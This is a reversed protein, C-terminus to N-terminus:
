SEEDDEDEDDDGLSTLMDVVNQSLKGAQFDSATYGGAEPTLCHGILARLAELFGEALATVSAREHLAEGYTFQVQLRGGVVSATADLVYARRARPSRAAGSPERAARLPAEQPVAQGIQGLYNFIIEPQPLARLQQRLTDDERLYRLLGYGIGRNPIARLQEKVEKLVWGLDTETGIDLVVPFLTTFWGVTRSLNVGPFIEERGHGELDFLVAGEGTFSRLALAFAALLVDNIQTGYVEPVDRLLSETQEKSLSLSVMKASSEPNEAGPHDVPLRGARQRKEDLWYDQEARVEATRAHEGLLAAWRKISTTRPPLAIPEGRLRAQYAVWLDDLLIRWSVGDIGLHHVVVLLRSPTSPGAQFLVVRIVPGDRLDLSQQAETATKKVAESRESEGLGALDVRQFPNPGGDAAITQIAGLPDLDIRARLADHHDIIGLVAEEMAQADLEEKAELFVAQNWHHPDAFGQEVWWSVIPTLQIPGTVRGEVEAGTEIREAV